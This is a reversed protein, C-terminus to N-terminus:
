MNLPTGCNTRALYQDTTKLARALGFDGLKLVFGGPFRANEFLLVNKTKIDRHMVRNDHCHKLGCALQNFWALVTRQEFYGLTPDRHDYGHRRRCAKQKEILGYLDGADAYEMPIFLRGEHKFLSHCKIIHYHEVAKMFEVEKRAASIESTDSTNLRKLAYKTRTTKTESVYVDSFAGKGIKALVYYRDNLLTRPKGDAHYRSAM